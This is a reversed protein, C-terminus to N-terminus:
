ATDPSGKKEPDDDGDARSQLLGSFEMLRPFDRKRVSLGAMELVSFRNSEDEETQMAALTAATFFLEQSVKVPRGGVPPFDELDKGKGDSGTCYRKILKKAEGGSALSEHPELARLELTIGAGNGEQFTFTDAPMEERPTDWVEFKPM